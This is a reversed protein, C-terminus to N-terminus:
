IRWHIKNCKYTHLLWWLWIKCCKWGSGETGGGVGWGTESPFWLNNLTQSDTDTRGRSGKREGMFDWCNLVVSLSWWLQQSRVQGWRELSQKQQSGEHIPDQPGIAKQKERLRKRFKAPELFQGASARGQHRARGEQDSFLSGGKGGHRPARLRDKRWWLVDGPERMEWRHCKLRCQMLSFVSGFPYFKPKVGPEFLRLLDRWNEQWDTSSRATHM